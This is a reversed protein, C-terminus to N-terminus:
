RVRLEPQQSRPQTQVRRRQLHQKHRFVCATSTLQEAAATVTTTPLTDAASTFV